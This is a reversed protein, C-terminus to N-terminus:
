QIISIIYEPNPELVDVIFKMSVPALSERRQGEDGQDRDRLQM